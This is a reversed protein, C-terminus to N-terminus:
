AGPTGTLGASYLTSFIISLPDLASTLGNAASSTGTSSATTSATGTSSSGNSGGDANSSASTSATHGHHHHHHGGVAKAVDQINPLEGNKSANAFDTALQNLQNAATTNGSSQATQAATQLNTAIHQTVQQYEAPNSQQLQQLTSMLQAFPSLQSNDRQLALSSPNIGNLLNQNTKNTLGTGQLAGALLSQLYSSSLNNISGMTPKDARTPGTELHSLNNFRSIRLVGGPTVNEGFRGIETTV